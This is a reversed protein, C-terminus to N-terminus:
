RADQGGLATVELVRVEGGTPMIMDLASRANDEIRMHTTLAAEQIQLRGWEVDLADRDTRVHQLASFEERTLYKVHIVAVGSALVAAVLGAAVVLGVRDVGADPRDTM